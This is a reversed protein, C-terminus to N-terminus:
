EKSKDSFLNVPVSGESNEENTLKVINATCWVSPLSPPGRGANSVNGLRFPNNKPDLLKSPCIGSEKKSAISSLDASIVIESSDLLNIPDM